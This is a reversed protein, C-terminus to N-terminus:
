AAYSNEVEGRDEVRDIRHTTIHQNCWIGEGSRPALEPYQQMPVVAGCDLHLLYFKRTTRRTTQTAM